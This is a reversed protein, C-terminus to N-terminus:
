DVTLARMHADLILFYPTRTLEVGENKSYSAGLQTEHKVYFANYAKAVSEYDYDDNSGDNIIITECKEAFHPDIRLSELTKKVEDGENLFAIVVTLQKM